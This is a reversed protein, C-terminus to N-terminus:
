SYTGLNYSGNNYNLAPIPPPAIFIRTIVPEISVKGKFAKSILGTPSTLLMDYVASNYAFAATQQPTLSLVILGTISSSITLLSNATTAELMVESSSPFPRIQMAASYGALNVPVGAQDLVNFARSFSAGQFIEIEITQTQTQM